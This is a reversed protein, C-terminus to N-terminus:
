YVGQIKANVHNLESKHESAVVCAIDGFPVMGIMATQDIVPIHRFRNDPLYCTMDDSFYFSLFSFFANLSYFM